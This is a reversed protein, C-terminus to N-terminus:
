DVVVMSNSNSEIQEKVAEIDDNDPALEIYQQYAANAEALYDNYLEKEELTESKEQNKIKDAACNYAVGLTYYVSPEKPSLEKAKKINDLAKQCNDVKLYAVALNYRTEYINEDLDISSELRSIASEVDGKDIYTKALENLEHIAFNNMCASTLVGLILIALFSLLKKM